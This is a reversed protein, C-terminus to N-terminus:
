HRLVSVRDSFVVLQHFVNAAGPGLHDPFDVVGYADCVSLDAM